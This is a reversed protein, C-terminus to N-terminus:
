LERRRRLWSVFGVGISGLLFAGPVPVVNGSIRVWEIESQNRLLEIGIRDFSTLQNDQRFNAAEVLGDISLSWWGDADRTWAFDRWPSANIPHRYMYEVGNVYSGFDAKQNSEGYDMGRYWNGEGHLSTTVSNPWQTGSKARMEISLEGINNLSLPHTIFVNLGGDGGYGSGVGGLSYGEPSFVVVPPNSPNGSYPNTLSWGDYNGDDFDDYFLESMYAMSMKPCVVTLIALVLGINVLKVSKM